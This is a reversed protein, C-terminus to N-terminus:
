NKQRSDYKSIILKETDKNIEIYCSKLGKVFNDVFLHKCFPAYGEVLMSESKYLENVKRTFEDKDMYKLENSDTLIIPKTRIGKGSELTANNEIFIHCFTGTSDHGELVYRASLTRANGGIEKQTDCGGPLVEGKFIESNCRGHFKVMTATGNFGKVEIVDDVDVEIELVAKGM